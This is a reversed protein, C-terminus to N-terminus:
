SVDVVKSANQILWGFLSDFVEASLQFSFGTDLEGDDGDFRQIALWDFVVHYLQKLLPADAFFILGISKQEQYCDLVSARSNLDPISQFGDNCVTIRTLNEAAKPRVKSGVLVAWAKVSGSILEGTADSLVCSYSEGRRRFGRLWSVM